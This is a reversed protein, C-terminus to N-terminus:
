GRGTVRRLLQGLEHTAARLFSMMGRYQPEPMSAIDSARLHVAPPEVHPSPEAPVAPVLPWPLFPGQPGSAIALELHCECRPHRLPGLLKGGYVAPPRTFIIPEGIPTKYRRAGAATRVHRAHEHPLELPEGHPFEDELVVTLGDLAWCWRCTRKSKRSRWTKMVTYGQDRLDLGHLIVSATLGNGAAVDITLKGRLVLKDTQDRIARAIAAPREAVPADQYAASVSERIVSGPATDYARQVDDLLAQLVASQGPGEAAVWARSVLDQTLQQAAAIAGTLLAQVDSRELLSVPGLDPEGQLVLSMLAPLGAFAQRVGAALQSKLRGASALVDEHTAM